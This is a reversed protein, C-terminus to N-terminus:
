YVDEAFRDDGEDEFYYSGAILSLSLSLVKHVQVLKNLLDEMKIKAMHIMQPSHLLSIWFKPFELLTEEPPATRSARLARLLQYTIGVPKRKM